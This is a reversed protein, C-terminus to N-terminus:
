ILSFTYMKFYILAQQITPTRSRHWSLCPICSEVLRWRNLMSFNSYILCFFKECIGDVVLVVGSIYTAGESFLFVTSNAIDQVEGM